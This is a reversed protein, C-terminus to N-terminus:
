SRVGVATGLFFPIRRQFGREATNTLRRSEIMWLSAVQLAFNVSGAEGVESGM